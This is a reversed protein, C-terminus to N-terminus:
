SREAVGPRTRARRAATSQAAKGGDHSAQERLWAIFAAAAANPRRHAPHVAYYSFRSRLEPGPLRMLQGSQLYPAAIYTRGLAAGLGHVAAQMADTSDSFTHLERLRVGRVGADRFWDSWGQHALDTVLPLEPIQDATTISAVKSLRPSAVPFLAEDM